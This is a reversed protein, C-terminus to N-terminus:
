FLWLGLTFILAAGGLMLIARWRNRLKRARVANLDEAVHMEGSYDRAREDVVAPGRLADGGLEHHSALAVEEPTPPMGAAEDDTGLPAAAPDPFPAKSGAKGHDIEHRLRDTSPM